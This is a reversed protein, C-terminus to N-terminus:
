GSFQPLDVLIGQLNEQPHGPNIYFAEESLGLSSVQNLAQLNQVLYTQESPEDM